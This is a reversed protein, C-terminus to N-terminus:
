PKERQVFALDAHSKDNDVLDNEELDAEASAWNQCMRMGEDLWVTALDKKVDPGFKTYMTIHSGASVDEVTALSTGDTLHISGRDGSILDLTIDFVDGNPLEEIVKLGGGINPPNVKLPGVCDAFDDHIDLAGIDLNAWVSVESYVQGPVLNQIKGNKHVLVEVLSKTTGEIDVTPLDDPYVQVNGTNAAVPAPAPTGDDFFCEGRDFTSDPDPCVLTQLNTHAWRKDIDIADIQHIIVLTAGENLVGPLNGILYNGNGNGVIESTVDKEFGWAVDQGWCPDPIDFAQRDATVTVGNIDIQTSPQSPNLAGWFLHAAVPVHNAPIGAITITASALGRLAVGDAVYGAPQGSGEEFVVGQAVLCDTIGATSDTTITAVIDGGIVNASVDRTFTDWYAIAPGDLGDVTGQFVGNFTVPNVVPTTATQADAEILTFKATPAADVTFGGISIITPRDFVQTDVGSYLSISKTGFDYQKFPVPGVTTIVQVSIDDSRDAPDATGPAAGGAFAVTNYSVLGLAFITAISLGLLLRKNKIIMAIIM